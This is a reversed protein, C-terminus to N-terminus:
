WFPTGTATLRDLPFNHLLQRIRNSLLEEFMRRCLPNLFFSQLCHVSCTNLVVSAIWQFLWQTCALVPWIV